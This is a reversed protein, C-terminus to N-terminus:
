RLASSPYRERMREFLEEMFKAHERRRADQAAQEGVQQAPTSHSVGNYNPTDESM